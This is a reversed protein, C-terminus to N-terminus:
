QKVPHYATCGMQILMDPNALPTVIVTKALNHDQCYGQFVKDMAERDQSNALLVTIQVVDAFSADEEEMFRKIKKLCQLTQTEITTNKEGTEFNHRGCRSSMFLFDGGRVVAKPPKTQNSNGQEKSFMEM